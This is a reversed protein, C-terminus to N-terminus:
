RQMEAGHVKCWAHDPTEQHNGNHNGNTPSIGADHEKSAKGPQRQLSEGADRTLVFIAGAKALSEQM